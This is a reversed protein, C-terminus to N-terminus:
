LIKSTKKWAKEFSHASIEKMLNTFVLNVRQLHYIYSRKDHVQHGVKFFFQEIIYIRSKIM